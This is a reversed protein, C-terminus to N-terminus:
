CALLLELFQPHGDPAKNLSGLGLLLLLLLPPPLPPPHLELLLVLLVLLLFGAGARERGRALVTEPEVRGDFPCGFAVGLTATVKVGAAHGDTIIREAIAAAEAATANQNRTAFGDTM